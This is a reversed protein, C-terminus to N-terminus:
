APEQENDQVLQVDAADATWEKGGGVPRLWVRTALGDVRAVHMVEGVCGTSNDRALRRQLTASTTTPATSM